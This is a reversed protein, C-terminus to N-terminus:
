EYRNLYMPSSAEDKRQKVTSGKSSAADKHESGKSRPSTTSKRHMNMKMKLENKLKKARLLYQAYTTYRM